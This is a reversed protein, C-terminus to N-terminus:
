KLWEPSLGTAAAAKHLNEIVDAPLPIGERMARDYREWEVEGPVLLRDVGDARPANHIEEILV